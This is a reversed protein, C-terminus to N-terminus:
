LIKFRKIVGMKGLFSNNSKGSSESEFDDLGFLLLGLACAYEPGLWEYKASILDTNVRGVKVKKKYLSHMLKDCDTMKAGGGVLVLGSKLSRYLNQDNLKARILKFLVLYSQRIVEILSEHSLYYYNSDDIQQFKILRDAGLKVQAQGHEIKLREAEQFSTNFAESIDQTAQKVGFQLSGSYFISGQKFVSLDTVGSGIDVLCVGKDKEDQTLCPKSSAMSNPVMSSSGLNSWHISNEVAEVHHNSATVIHMSVGLNDAKKGLPQNIPEPNADLTYHHTVKNIDQHNDPMKTKIISEIIKVVTNLESDRVRGSPVHTHASQNLVKLNPDSINVSVNQFDAGYEKIVEKKIKKIVKAVKKANEVVGRRVGDSDAQGYGFVEVRNNKLEALLVVIKSSGIDVSAIFNSDAM